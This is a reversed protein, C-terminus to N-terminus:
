SLHPFNSYVLFLISLISYAIKVEENANEKASNRSSLISNAGKKEQTISEGGNKNEVDGQRFCRLSKKSDDTLSRADKPIFCFNWSLWKCCSYGLNDNELSKLIM